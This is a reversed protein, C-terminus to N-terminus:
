LPFASSTLDFTEPLHDLGGETNRLRGPVAVLVRHSMLGILMGLVRCREDFTRPPRLSGDDQFLPEEQIQAAEVKACDEGKPM